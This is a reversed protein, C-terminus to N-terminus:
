LGDEDKMKRRVSEWADELRAAYQDPTLYRYTKCTEARFRCEGNSSDLLRIAHGAFDSCDYDAVIGGEPVILEPLSGKPTVIPVCGAMQAKEVTGCHAEVDAVCPYLLVHCRHYMEKMARFGLNGAFTVNYRAWQDKLDQAADSYCVYLEANPVVAHVRKWVELTRELGRDWSSAYLARPISGRSELTPDFQNNSHLPQSVYYLRDRPMGRELLYQEQWRSLALYGWGRTVWENNPPSVVPTYGFGLVPGPITHVLKLLFEDEFMWPYEKGKSSHGMFFLTADAPYKLLKPFPEIAVKGETFSKRTQGFITIEHGRDALATAALIEHENFGKGGGDWAEKHGPAAMPLSLDVVRIRM